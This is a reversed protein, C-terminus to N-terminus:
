ADGPRVTLVPCPAHRIVDDVVSSSLLHSLRGHCHSAMVILSYHAEEAVAVIAESPSKVGGQAVRGHVEVEGGDIDALCDRMQKGEEAHAFDALLHGDAGKPHDWVHLLDVDAGLTQGLRAAYRMAVRSEPSFDIPVLIRTPAELQM